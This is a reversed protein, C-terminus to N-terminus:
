DAFVFKELFLLSNVEGGRLYRVFQSLAARVEKQSTKSLRLRKATESDTQLGRRIIALTSPSLEVDWSQPDPVCSLHCAGGFLPSFVARDSPKFPLGCVPCSDFRPGYGVVALLRIEHLLMIFVPPLSQDLKELFEHTLDFIHPEPHAEALLLYCIELFYTSWAVRVPDSRINSYARIMESDDIWVLDDKKRTRLNLEVISLPELRGAFRIRSKRANKAIGRLWGLERSFFVVLEDAEGREKKGLIISRFV